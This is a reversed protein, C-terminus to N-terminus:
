PQSTVSTNQAMWVDPEYREVTCVFRRADASMSIERLDCNIPLELYPQFEGRPGRMRSVSLKRDPGGVTVAAYIWGDGTWRLFRINPIKTERYQWQGSGVTTHAIGDNAAVGIFNTAM